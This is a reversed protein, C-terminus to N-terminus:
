LQNLTGLDSQRIDLYVRFNTPQENVFHHLPRLRLFGQWPMNDGSGVRVGAGAGAGVGVGAGLGAGAGVGECVWSM